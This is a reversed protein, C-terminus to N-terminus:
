CKQEKQHPCIGGNLHRGLNCNHCAVQFIPPWGNKKAWASTRMGTEERHQTGGGGIHDLGLFLTEKEGCCFCKGGYHQLAELQTRKRSEAAQQNKRRKMEEFWAPDAEKKKKLWKRAYSYAKDPHDKTWDSSAEPHKQAYRRQAAARQLRKREAMEEPSLGTRSGIAM